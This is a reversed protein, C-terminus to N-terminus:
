SPEPQLGCVRVRAAEPLPAEQLLSKPCLERTQRLRASTGPLWPSLPSAAPRGGRGRPAAARSPVCRKRENPKKSRSRGTGLPVGSKRCRRQPSRRVSVRSLSGLSGRPSSAEFGLSWPPGPGTDVQRFSGAAAPLASLPGTGLSPANMVPLGASGARVAAAVQRAGGVHSPLVPKPKAKQSALLSSGTRRGRSTPLQSEPSTSACGSRSPASTPPQHQERSCLRARAASAFRPM